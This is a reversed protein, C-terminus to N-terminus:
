KKALERFANRYKARTREFAKVTAEFTPDFPTLRIAGNEAVAHLTDGEKLRLQDALAKPVTFGLSHGVRRVKLTSTV